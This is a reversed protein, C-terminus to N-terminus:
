TFALLENRQYVLNQSGGTLVQLGKALNTKM